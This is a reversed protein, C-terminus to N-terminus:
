STARQRYTKMYRRMYAKRRAERQRKRYVEEARKEAKRKATVARRVRDWTARDPAVGAWAALVAPPMPREGSTRYFWSVKLSLSRWTESDVAAFKDVIAQM